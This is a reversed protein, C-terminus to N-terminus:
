IIGDFCPDDFRYLCDFYGLKLISAFRGVILQDLWRQTLPIGWFRRENCLHHATDFPQKPLSNARGVIPAVPM